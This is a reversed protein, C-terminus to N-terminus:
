GPTKPAGGKPAWNSIKAVEEIGQKNPNGDDKTLGFQDANKHLWGILAQKVPKGSLLGPDANVAQWARIAAALKPSYNKHKPDLYEPAESTRPFFFGTNVGRTELWSQIADFSLMTDELDIIEKHVIKQGGHSDNVLDSFKKTRVEAKIKDSTIAAVLATLVAPYNQPLDEDRLERINLFDGPNFGIILLTAQFVNFGYSLRWYDLNEMDVNRM